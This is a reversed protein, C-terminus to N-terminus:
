EEELYKDLFKLYLEREQRVPDDTEFNDDYCTWCFILAGIRLMEEELTTSFLTLSGDKECLAGCNEFVGGSLGTLYLFNHDM